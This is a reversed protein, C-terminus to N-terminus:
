GNKDRAEPSRRSRGRGAVLVVLAIGMAALSWAAPEPVATATAGATVHGFNAALIAVDALTIQGDNNFDGQEVGGSSGLHRQVAALDFLSVIGDRNTDGPVLPTSSIVQLYVQEEQSWEGGKKGATELSLVYYDAPTAAPVGLNFVWDRPGTAGWSIGSTGNATFLTGSYRSTWAPDAAGDLMNSASGVGAADIGRVLPMYKDAGNTVRITLPVTSGAEAVFSKLSGMGGPPNALGSNGLVTIHGTSSSHCSACDGGFGPKAALNGSMLLGIAIALPARVLRNISPDM